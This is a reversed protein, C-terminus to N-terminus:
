NIHRKTPRKNNLRRKKTKNKYGGIKNPYIPKLNYPKGVLAHYSKNFANWKLKCETQKFEKPSVNKGLVLEMEITISIAYNVKKKQKVKQILKAIKWSNKDYNFGVITYPKSNILLISKSPFISDLTIKINNSIVGNHTAIALDKVPQTNNINLLSDFLGSNFFQKIRFDLPINNIISSNLKVLPNFYVHEEKTEPFSLSPTYDISQFGPISTNIKIKLENPIEDM